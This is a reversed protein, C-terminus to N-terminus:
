QIVPLGSPVSDPFEPLQIYARSDTLTKLFILLLRVDQDSLDVPRLFVRDLTSLVDSETAGDRLVLSVIRFDLQAVDYNRYAAAPDRYHRVANELSTYAGNHMWPGTLDVNRLSPTRFGFRDAPNGTVAARGIDLPNEPERGAGIQPIGINHFAQDTLLAGRHCGACGARRYFLLAGQKASDSLSELNGALYRDFPADLQTFVAREFAAIAAAAHKFSIAASDIGPFADRFRVLYEPYSLIRDVIASWVAAWQTDAFEALENPEGLVTTDGKLGRMEDRGVVPFMAQAALVSPLGPPLMAGAPTRLSGGVLEVRGDHFLSAFSDLGKNYLDSTNRALFRGQGIKRAPGNRVGGTGIGLSLLDTSHYALHHCTGCAINKNGSLVKDFFLLRGLELLEEREPSPAPVSRVGAESLAVALEADLAAPQERTADSCGAVYCLAGVVWLQFIPRRQGNEPTL